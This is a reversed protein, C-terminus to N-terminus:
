KARRNSTPRYKGAPRGSPPLKDGPLPRWEDPALDVVSPDAPRARPSAFPRRFGALLWRRTPPILIAIGLVSSLFGPILLFVGGLGPGLGGRWATTTFGGPTQIRQGTSAFHRLVMAGAVSMLVILLIANGFGVFASVCFFAIIEAAPWTLLGVAIAKFPHMDM